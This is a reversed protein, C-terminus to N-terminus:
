YVISIPKLRSKIPKNCNEIIINATKLKEYYLTLKARESPDAPSIYQTIIRRTTFEDQKYYKQM